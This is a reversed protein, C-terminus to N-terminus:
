FVLRGKLSCRKLSNMLAHIDVVRVCVLVIYIVVFRSLNTQLACNYVFMVFGSDFLAYCRIFLASEVGRQRGTM